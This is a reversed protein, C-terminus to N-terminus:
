IDSKVTKGQIITFIHEVKALANVSLADFKTLGAKKLSDMDMGAVKFDSSKDHLMPCVDELNIPSIVLGAAHKGQNKFTGELRIAQEFYGAYDGTYKGDKYECYDRLVDPKNELTWQLISYKGGNEEMEVLQPEIDAEQPLLKTIRNIQEFSGVEHASFIEKVISSGMMRGFTAVQAVRKEGYKNRIYEIVSERGDPPFDTDIDPYEIKGESFRGSNLFRSFLLNYPIPDLETIGLLYCVLSGSSSGRGLGVLMREKAWRIYDSVILFYGTLDYKQIVGLEEKVREGYLEENWSEKKRNAYGERCLKLLYDKESLGETWEYKPLSPKNLIDYEEINDVWSVNDLPVHQSSLAPIFEPNLDLNKNLNKLSCRFASCLLIKYDELDSKDLIHCDNIKDLQIKYKECLKIIESNNLCKPTLIGYLNKFKNIYKKFEVETTVSYLGGVLCILNDTDTIDELNLVPRHKYNDNSKSVLHLLQTYGTKNKAILHIAKNNSDLFKCGIIPKIDNDKCAKAFEIAGSLSNYDSLILQKDPSKKCFDKPHYLASLLANEQKLNLPSLGYTTHVLTTM